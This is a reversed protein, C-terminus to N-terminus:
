DNQDFVIPDIRWQGGFSPAMSKRGHVDCQLPAGAPFPPGDVALDGIVDSELDCVTPEFRAISQGGNAIQRPIEADVAVGDREGVLFEDVRPDRDRGHTATREDRGRARAVRRADFIKV